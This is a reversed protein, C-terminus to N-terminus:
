LHAIVRRAAAIHMAAPFVDNSSQSLNVDDNPHIPRKSGRVGGGLEIARNSIVENVNMNTQTGSGTQWVVLPFEGDLDGRAVEDAAATILMAKADSLLGLDRNVLASAKKILALAHVLERPMREGGIRFNDLSRQTQAGWYRASDVEIPGMSDTETRTAM